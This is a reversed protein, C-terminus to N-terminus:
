FFRVNLPVGSRLLGGVDDLRNHRIKSFIEDIDFAPTATVDQRPLMASGFAGGGGGAYHADTSSYGYSDHIGSQNSYSPDYYRLHNNSDYTESGGYEQHNYYEGSAMSPDHPYHHYYSNAHPHEYGGAFPVGGRDEYRGAVHRHITSSPPPGSPAEVVQRPSLASSGCEPAFGRPTFYRRGGGDSASGSSTGGVRGRPTQFNSSQYGGGSNSHDGVSIAANTWAAGPSAYGGGMYAREFSSARVVGRPTVYTEGESSSGPDLRASGRPSHFRRDGSSYGDM